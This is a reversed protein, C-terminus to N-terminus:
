VKAEQFGQSPGDKITIPRRKQKTRSTLARGKHIASGLTPVKIIEDRMFLRPGKLTQNMALFLRKSLKIEVGVITSESIKQTSDVNPKYLITITDGKQFDRNYHIDKSFMKLIFFRQANSLGLAKASKYFSHEVTVTKSYLQTLGGQEAVVYTGNQMPIKIKKTQSPVPPPAYRVNLAFGIMVIFIIAIYHSVPKTKQIIKQQTNFTLWVQKMQSYLQETMKDLIYFAVTM